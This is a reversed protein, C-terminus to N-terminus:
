HRRRRVPGRVRIWAALGVTGGFAASGEILALAGIGSSTGSSPYEVTLSRTASYMRGSPLVVTVQVVYVGASPPVFVLSASSNGVPVGNVTWRVEAGSLNSPGVVALTVAQGSRPTSSPAVVGIQLTPLVSINVSANATDGLADQVVLSATYNGPSRYTYNQVSGGVSSNNDGFSWAFTLPGEGGSAQATFTVNLPASGETVNAALGVTLPAYVTVNVQATTTSNASDRATFRAVYTGPVGYVHSVNAGPASTGDGFSWSDVYPAVGGSVYATFNVPMPTTGVEPTAFAVASLNAPSSGVTVEISRSATNGSADQVSLSVNYSGATSFNWSPDAATSTGLSSFNWAYTYPSTGGSVNSSFSVNLPAPGYAPTATLNIELPSPAAGVSIAEAATAVTGQSDTVTISASYNGSTSYTYSPDQAQSTAGNGFKWRYAYPPAGGTPSATFQVTLPATGSNPTAGVTVALPTASKSFNFLAKMPPFYKPNDYHGTHGLGLLWEVTTMLTYHTANATYPDKPYPRVGLTYPSVADLIVNGGHITTGDTTYGHGSLGEDYTIFWVTSSFWPLSLYPTLWDKLWHDAYALGTNHGDDTLNPVFLAYNPITGANVDNYWNTFPVDHADCLATNNVINYYHLFANPDPSYSAYGHLDCPKPMTEMFADWSRGASQLLNGLNSTNYFRFDNTGCQWANGSTLALYNPTSPHCVGYYHSAYSYKEALSTEFPGGSLVTKAEENEMVIVFVHRIPTPFATSTSATGLAGSSSPAVLTLSPLSSRAAGGGAVPGVGGAFGAVVVAILIAIALIAPGAGKPNRRRTRANARAAVARGDTRPDGPPSDSPGDRGDARM